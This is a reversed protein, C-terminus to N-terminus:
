SAQEQINHREAILRRYLAAREKHRRRLHTQLAERAESLAYEYGVMGWCSGDDIHKGDPDTIIYGYCDGSAWQSYVDVDQELLEVVSPLRVTSGASDIIDKGTVPTDGMVKQWSTKTVIALGSYSLHGRWSCRRDDRPDQYFALGGDCRRDLAGVFLIEDSHHLSAYRAVLAAWVGRDDAWRGIPEDLCDPLMDVKDPSDYRSEWTILISGNDADRPSLCHEDYHLEITFGAFQETDAITMRGDGTEM